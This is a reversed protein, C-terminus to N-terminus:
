DTREPLARLNNRLIYDLHESLSDTTKINGANITTVHTHWKIITASVRSKSNRRSNLEVVLYM